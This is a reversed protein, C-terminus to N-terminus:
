TFEHAVVAKSSPAIKNHNVEEVVWSAVVLAAAMTEVEWLVAELVKNTCAPAKLERDWVVATEVKLVLEVLDWAERVTCVAEVAKTVVEKQVMRTIAVPVTVLGISSITEPQARYQRGM